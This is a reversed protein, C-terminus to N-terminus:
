AKQEETAIAKLFLDEEFAARRAKASWWLFVPTSWDKRSQVLWGNDKSNEWRFNAEDYAADIRKRRFDEYTTFREM